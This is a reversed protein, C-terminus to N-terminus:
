IPGAQPTPQRAFHFHCITLNGLYMPFNMDMARNAKYCLWTWATGDLDFDLVYTLQKFAAILTTVKTQLDARSSGKVEVDVSGTAIDDVSSLLAGGHVFPSKAWEQRQIVEGPVLGDSMVEYGNTAILELDSLALLTRSITLSIAM